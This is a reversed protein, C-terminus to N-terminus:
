QKNELDKKQKTKGNIFAYVLSILTGGVMISGAWDHDKLICITGCVIMILAIVFAFIQGRKSESIQEHIAFNELEIRHANQNEAMKLIREPADPIVNKYKELEAAPPIPGSYHSTVMIRSQEPIKNQSDPLKNNGM